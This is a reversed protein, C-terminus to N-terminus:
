RTRLSLVVGYCRPPGPCSPYLSGRPLIALPAQPNERGSSNDRPAMVPALQKGRARANDRGAEPIDGDTRGM